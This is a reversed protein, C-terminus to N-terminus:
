PNFQNFISESLVRYIKEHNPENKLFDLHNKMIKQNGRRAPGTQMSHVDSAQLAKIITENIIPKLLNFDLENAELIDQSIAILHNVFNNSFIASIHLIKREASDVLYVINSMKQATEVLLNEITESPAEICFPINNISIKKNKTFSMLPYFVGINISDLEYEILWNELIEISKAGSTHVLISNPPLEIQALVEALADDNVALVFLKAESESFDLNNVATTDFLNKVLAKANLLNRSYVECIINGNDEFIQALHWAVNGSGIFSIKM